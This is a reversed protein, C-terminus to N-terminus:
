TCIIPRGHSWRSARVEGQAYKSMFCVIACSCSTISSVLVKRLVFGDKGHVETQMRGGTMPGSMGYNWHASLVLVLKLLWCFHVNPFSFSFLLDKYRIRGRM